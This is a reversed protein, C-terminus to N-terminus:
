LSFFWYSTNLMHTQSLKKESITSNRRRKQTELRSKQIGHGLFRLTYNWPSHVITLNVITIKMCLLYQSNEMAIHYYHVGPCSKTLGSLLTEKSQQVQFQLNRRTKVWVQCLCFLFFDSSPWILAPYNPMSHLKRKINYSYYELLKAM